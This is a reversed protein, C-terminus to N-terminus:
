VSEREVIKWTRREKGGDHDNELHTRSGLGLQGAIGRMGRLRGGRTGRGLAWSGHSSKRQGQWLVGEGTVLDDGVRVVELLDVADSVLGVALLDGDTNVVDVNTGIGRGLLGAVIGLVLGLGDNIDDVRETQVLGVEVLLLVKGVELTRTGCM